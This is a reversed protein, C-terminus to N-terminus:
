LLKTVASFVATFIAAFAIWTFLIKTNKKQTRFIIVLSINFIIWMGIKVYIWLPFGDGHKFGLRAVLGMGAVFIFFSLIGIVVKFSTRPMWRGESVIAGLAAVTMMITFLHLIKYTEYSFM